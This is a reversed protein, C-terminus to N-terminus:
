AREEAILDMVVRTISGNNKALLKKNTEKDEFGMENLEELIPDWESVDCLDDVSRDLDYENMRLVEKNLEVEKFGMQSLERLLKEEAKAEDSPNKLNSIDDPVNPTNSSSERIETIVPYSVPSAAAAAAAEDSANKLNSIDDPVNPTKSPSEGIETTVPYSVPSAAAAPEDAAPPTVSSPAVDGDILLDDNTPFNPSVKETKQYQEPVDIIFGSALQEFDAEPFPPGYNDPPLNLNLNLNLYPSSERPLDDSLDVQIQVWVRQGFKHGSSEAMRWYSIYRGPLEPAIFDVAIDLECGVDVNTSSPIQIEVSDSPSFRDGGIWLLRLGRNWPCTGNNRMRWIKTFPTLPAMTTGDMVNVDNIFRSDLRPRFPKLAHPRAVCKKLHRGDLVNFSPSHGRPSPFDIRTYDVGNGMRSFCVNCLDYDYKVKSKFRPGTIPLVGCGDCRVGKHFISGSCDAKSPSRDPLRNQKSKDHASPVTLPVAGQYIPSRFSLFGRAKEAGERFLIQSANSPIRGWKGANFGAGNKQAIDTSTWYPYRISSEVEIPKPNIPATPVPDATYTDSQVVEDASGEPKRGESNPNSKDGVDDHCRNNTSVSNSLAANMCSQGMKSLGDFLEGLIPSNSAAKSSIDSSLKSLAQALPVQVSELIKAVDPNTGQQSNSSRLVNNLTEQVSKVVESVNPQANQPLPTSSAASRSPASSSESSQDSKLHITIRVPDLCQRVVDHLDEDDVITVSDDDEDKYTLRFDADSALNFLSRIKLRLGEMSLDLRQDENVAVNFRRLTEEFKVKFVISEM